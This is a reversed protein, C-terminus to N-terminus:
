WKWWKSKKFNKKGSYFVQSSEDREENNKAQRAEEMLVKNTVFDYTVNSAEQCFVVDIAITVVQFNEPMSALLQTIIESDDIIGGSNKIEYITKQFEFLINSLQGSSSFKM